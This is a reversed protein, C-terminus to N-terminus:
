TKIFNLNIFTKKKKIKSVHTYFNLRHVLLHTLGVAIFLYKTTSSVVFRYGTGITKLGMYNQFCAHNFMLNILARSFFLKKVETEPSYFLHLQFFNNQKLSTIVSYFPLIVRVIGAPGVIYTVTTKLRIIKLTFVNLEVFKFRSTVLM